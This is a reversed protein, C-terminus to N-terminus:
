ALPNHWRVEGFRAFDSDASCVTLGHELALAALQADPVLGGRVDHETILQGFLESYRTGPEPVWTAPAELWDIIRGWADAADLPHAFARPHTALRLVAALTQWPIGVRRQGNLQETLWVVAAQHFKARENLAYLLLNADLLM